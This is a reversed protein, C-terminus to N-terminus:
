HQPAKNIAALMQTHAHHALHTLVNYLWGLDEMEACVPLNLEFIKIFIVRTDSFIYVWLYSM